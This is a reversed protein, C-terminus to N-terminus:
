INFVSKLSCWFLTRQIKFFQKWSALVLCPRLAQKQFSNNFITKSFMPIRHLSNNNNSNLMKQTKLFSFYFLLLQFSFMNKTNEENEKSKWLLFFFLKLFQVCVHTLWRMPVLKIDFKPM